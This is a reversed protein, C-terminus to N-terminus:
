SSGSAVDHHHIAYGRDRYFRFRDRAAQRDGEGCGVIEILRQFRSFFRPAADHLNLLVEDHIATDADRAIVVPADRAPEGPAASHAFSIAPFASLAEGIGKATADDPAYILVRLRQQLARAALRCAIGLKSDANFYFDIRTM